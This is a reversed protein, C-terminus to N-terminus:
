SAAVIPAIVYKWVFDRTTVVEGEKMAPRFPIAMVRRKIEKIDDKSLGEPANLVKVNRAEGLVTVNMSIDLNLQQLDPPVEELFFPQPDVFFYMPKPDSMYSDALKATAENQVLIQYGLEYFERSKRSYDFVLFWDGLDALAEAYELPSTSDNAAMSELYTMFAKRGARYHEAISVNMFDKPFLTGSSVAMYNDSNLIMGHNLLFRVLEFQAEALRRYAIATDPHNIGKALESVRALEETLETIRQYDAYESDQLDLPRTALYWLYMRELVPLMEPNDKGYASSNIFYINHLVEDATDSEGLLTELNALLYLHNTQEPSNPGSNVRVVLVGRHFADRAQEYDGSDILAQGLGLYMDSLETAYPGYEAEINDIADLYDNAPEHPPVYATSGERGWATQFFLLSTLFCVLPLVARRRSAGPRAISLATTLYKTLNGTPM